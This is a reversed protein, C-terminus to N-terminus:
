REGAMGRMSIKERGRAQEQVGRWVSLLGDASLATIRGAVFSGAILIGGSMQAFVLFHCSSKQYTSHPHGDANKGAADMMYSRTLLTYTWRPFVSRGPALARARAAGM